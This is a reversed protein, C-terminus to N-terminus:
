SPEKDIKTCHYVSTGVYFSGLKECEGAVTNHAHIWGCVWGILLVLIWMTVDARIDGWDLWDKVAMM